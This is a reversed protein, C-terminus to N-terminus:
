GRSELGAREASPNVSGGRGWQTKSPAPVGVGQVVELGQGGHSLRHSHSNPEFGEGAAPALKGGSSQVEWAVFKGRGAASVSGPRPCLRLLTWAGQGPVRLANEVGPPSPVGQVAGKGRWWAM